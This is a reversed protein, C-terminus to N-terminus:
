RRSGGGRQFAWDPLHGSHVFSRVIESLGHEPEIACAEIAYLDAHTSRGLAWSLWACMALPGPRSARPSAAAVRRVLRLARELREIEPREGEGWMRMALHAPYEYGDEWRLQAELAEDGSVISGSWQVLGIDRIAPRSLCWILTAADYPELAEPDWELAAEFLSPLDDLACVASLARPDIRDSEDPDSAAVAAQETRHVTRAPRGRHREGPTADPGCLVDVGRELAALAGGVRETEALDVDPLEAGSRQDGPPEDLGEAQPPNEGLTSLPHGGLPADQDLFSSWGDAAVCLADTTRLGCADARLELATVLDHHPLGRTGALDADTYTIAAFADADPLRCVMGIVTSAIRDIEDPEVEPLDFRMAGLSRAGDFPIIVLSRSPVYGLMRPILSLFQAANAAKVTTTM